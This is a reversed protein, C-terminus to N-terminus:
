FNKTSTHKRLYVSLVKKKGRKLLGRMFNCFLKTHVLEIELFSAQFPNRKLAKGAHSHKAHM